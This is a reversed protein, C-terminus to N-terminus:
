EGQTVTKTLIFHAPTYAGHLIYTDINLLNKDRALAPNAIPNNPDLTVFLTPNPYFLYVREILNTNLAVIKHISKGKTTTTDVEIHPTLVIPLTGAQTHIAPVEIGPVISSKISVQYLNQQNKAEERCLLDYTVPNMAIVDPSGLWKTQATAKAIKTRLSQAITDGTAVEETDTIQKLMGMYEWSTEDVLSTAKGNWFESSITRAYDVFMDANDKAILDQNFSGYSEEMKTNFFDYRIGTLHMRPLAQQWNNRGYDEDYTTVKYNPNGKTGSGIRPDVSMVNHPIAKQENWTHPFGSARTSRIKFGISFERNMYDKLDHDYDNVVLTHAENFGVAPLPYSAAAIYREKFNGDFQYPASFILRNTM